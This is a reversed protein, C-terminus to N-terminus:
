SCGDNWGMKWGVTGAQIGSWRNTVGLVTYVYVIWSSCMGKSYKEVFVPMVYMQCGLRKGLCKRHFVLSGQLENLSAGCHM